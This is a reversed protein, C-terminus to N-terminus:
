DPEFEELPQDLISVPPLPRTGNFLVGCVTGRTRASRFALAEGLRQAMFVVHTQEIVVYEADNLPALEDETLPQINSMSEAYFSRDSDKDLDRGTVLWRGRHLHPNKPKTTADLPNRRTDRVSTVVIRRLETKTPLRQYNHRPYLFSYARGPELFISQM